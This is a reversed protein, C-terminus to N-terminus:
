KKAAKKLTRKEITKLTNSIDNLMSDREKLSQEVKEIRGDTSVKISDWRQYQITDMRVTENRAVYVPIFCACIISFVSLVVAGCSLKTQSRAEESQAQAEATQKRAEISQAQAEATQKQAEELQREALTKFSHSELDILEQEIHICSNLLYFVRSIKNIVISKYEPSDFPGYEKKELYWNDDKIIYKELKDNCKLEVHFHFRPDDDNYDFKVLEKDSHPTLYADYKMWPNDSYAFSVYGERELKLLLSLACITDFYASDLVQKDYKGCRYVFFANPYERNSYALLATDEKLIKESLFGSIYSYYKPKCYEVLLRIYDKEKQSFIM